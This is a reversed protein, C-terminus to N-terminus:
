NVRIKGSSEAHKEIEIRRLKYQSRFHRPDLEKAPSRSFAGGSVMRSFGLWKRDPALGMIMAKDSQFGKWLFEDALPATHLTMTVFSVM